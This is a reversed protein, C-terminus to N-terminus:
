RRFRYVQFIRRGYSDSITALMEPEYGAAHAAAVLRPNVDPFIAFEPTHSVFLNGPDAAMLAVADAPFEDMGVRLPLRGHSLLRLNDLIGWDMCYVGRAGQGGLYRSLPFIADTWSISGGDRAMMRYYENTVLLCSTSLVAIVAALAPIGARGLRRSAGAFVAAPIALPLPWLLITHHVSGGAGATIAMELWAIGLAILCFLVIRRAARGAFPLAILALAFAWLMLNYRPQGTWLALEDSSRDLLNAPAHPQPTQWDEDTLYGFLGQGRLTNVMMLSKQPFQDTERRFNGHFTGGRSAANYILLPMAGLCCAAAALALRRLSFVARVQRRCVALTAVMLGSLMWEGLAKDWLALGLLYCGLALFRERREQYFRVLCYAGGLFLLHQLAVPGWDFCSTLLYLTDAALLICGALAAREGAVRRLLLYFLWVSFAGALLMPERVARVGTGFIHLVPDLLLTKLTGLYSMLMLPFHSHGIRLTYEASRPQLLPMAFLAEDDEIGLRPIFAQGALFYLTCALLATTSCATKYSLKRVRLPIGFGYRLMREPFAHFHEPIREALESFM